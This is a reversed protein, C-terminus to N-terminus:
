HRSGATAKLELVLLRQSDLQLTCLLFDATFQSLGHPTKFVRNLPLSSHHLLVSVLIQAQLLTDECLEPLFRHIQNGANIIPNNHPIKTSKMLGPASFILYLARGHM